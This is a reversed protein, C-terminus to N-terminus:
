MKPRHNDLKFLTQSHNLFTSLEEHNRNNICYYEGEPRANHRRVKPCIEAYLM